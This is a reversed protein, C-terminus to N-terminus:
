DYLSFLLDLSAHFWTGHGGRLWHTPTLGPHTSDLTGSGEMVSASGWVGLTGLLQVVSYYLLVTASGRSSM